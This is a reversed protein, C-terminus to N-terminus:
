GSHHVRDRGWSLWANKVALMNGSDQTSIEPGDGLIYRLPLYMHSSGNEYADLLAPVAPEGLAVLREFSELEMMHHLSSIYRTQKTWERVRRLVLSAFQDSPADSPTADENAFTIYRHDFEMRQIIEQDMRM